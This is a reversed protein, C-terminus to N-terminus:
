SSPIVAIDDSEGPRSVTLTYNYARNNQVWTKTFSRIDALWNMNVLEAGDSERKSFVRHFVGLNDQQFFEPMEEITQGNQIARYLVEPDRMVDGEQIYNHSVSVKRKGDGDTFVEVVLPMIASSGPKELKFYSHGPALLNIGMDTLYRFMPSKRGDVNYSVTNRKVTHAEDQTKMTSSM